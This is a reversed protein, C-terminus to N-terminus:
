CFVASSLRMLSQLESTHEESRVSNGPGITGGTLNLAGAINLDGGLTAGNTVNADGSIQIPNGVAGGHTTSGGDLTVDGTIVTTGAKSFVFHTGNSGSIGNGIATNGGFTLTSNTGSVTNNITTTGNFTLRSGTGSVNCVGPDSSDGITTEGNFTM